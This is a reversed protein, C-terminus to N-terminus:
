RSPNATLTLNATLTRTLATLPQPTTNPTLAPTLVPARRAEERTPANAFIHGFQSDAYEHVGGDAIVSFYGWM